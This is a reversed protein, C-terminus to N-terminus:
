VPNQGPLMLDITGLPRPPTIWTFDVVTADLSKALAQAAYADDAHFFRVQAYRVAVEAAVTSVQVIGINTATDTIQAVDAASVDQTAHINLAVNQMQPYFTQCTECIFAAPPTAGALQTPPALSSIVAEAIPVTEPLSDLSPEALEQKRQSVVTAPPIDAVLLPDSNARPAAFIPRDFAAIDSPANAWSHLREDIVPPIMELPLESVVAVVDPSVSNAPGAQDATAIDRQEANASTWSVYGVGAAVVVAFSVLAGAIPRKRPNSTKPLFAVKREESVSDLPNPKQLSDFLDTNAVPLGRPKYSRRPRSPRRATGSEFFPEGILAHNNNKTMRTM